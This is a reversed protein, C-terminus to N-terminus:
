GQDAGTASADAASLERLMRFLERSSKPPKGLEAEKRANRILQRMHQADSDPYDLLWQTVAEDSALLRERWRELAHFEAKAADSEGRLAALQEAIPEPDLDRMLKGIYQMQRRKAGHKNFRQWDLLATLLAEPLDMKKLREPSLGALEVGMDQLQLMAKKRQTKSPLSADIDDLAEDDYELDEDQM